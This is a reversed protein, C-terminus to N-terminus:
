AWAFPALLLCAALFAGKFSNSKTM